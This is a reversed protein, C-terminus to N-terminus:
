TVLALEHQPPPRAAARAPPDAELGVGSLYSRRSALDHLVALLRPRGGCAPCLTVTSEDFEYSSIMKWNRNLRIPKKMM